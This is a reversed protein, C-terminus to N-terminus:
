GPSARIVAPVEIVREAEENLAPTYQTVDADVSDHDTVRHKRKLLSLLFGVASSFKRIFSNTGETTPKAPPKKVANNASGHRRRSYAGLSLSVNPSEL